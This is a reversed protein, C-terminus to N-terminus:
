ATHRLYTYKETSVKLFRFLRESLLKVLIKGTFYYYIDEFFKYATSEM